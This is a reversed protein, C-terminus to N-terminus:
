ILNFTNFVILAYTILTCLAGLRTQYSSNGKYHVGIPSGFIDQSVIFDRLKHSPM